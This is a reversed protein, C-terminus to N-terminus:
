TQIKNNNNNKTNLKNIKQFLILYYYYYYYYILYINAYFEKIYKYLHLIYRYTYEIIVLLSEIKNRKKVAWEIRNAFIRPDEAM